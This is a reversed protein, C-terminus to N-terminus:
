PSSLLFVSIPLADSFFFLATKNQFGSHSFWMSSRLISNLTIFLLVKLHYPTLINVSNIQNLVSCLPTKKHYMLSGKQRPFLNSLSLLQQSRLCQTATLKEYPLYQKLIRHCAEKSLCTQTNLIQTKRCKVAPLTACDIYHSPQLWPLPPNTTQNLCSFSM